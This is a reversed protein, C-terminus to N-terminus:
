DTFITTSVVSVIVLGEFGGTGVRTPSHRSDRGERGVRGGWKWKPTLHDSLVMVETGALTLGSLSCM